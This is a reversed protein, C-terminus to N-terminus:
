PACVGSGWKGAVDQVTRFLDIGNVATSLAGQRALLGFYHHEFDIFPYAGYAGPSSNRQLAMGCNYKASRCEVWNGFGYAWDEGELVLPSYAVVANGRQSALMESAVRPTLVRGFYLARLFALYDEGTWHMGGAIRPNSASPLDYTSHGFLGTRAKFEDFVQAWSAVGRAKVAMLAAIQLHTGSYYFESGPVKRYGLNLDYINQVCNAFNYFPLNMCSPEDWFGSTFALLHRLKVSLAPHDAPPTWFSIFDQPHSDLSLYGRDVLALIAAGAVM